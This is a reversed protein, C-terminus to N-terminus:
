SLDFTTWGKANLRKQVSYFESFQAAHFNWGTIRTLFRKIVSTNLEMYLQTHDDTYLEYFAYEGFLRAGVSRMNTESKNIAIHEREWNDACVSLDIFCIDGIDNRYFLGDKTIDTINSIHIKIM